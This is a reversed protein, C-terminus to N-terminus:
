AEGAWSTVAMVAEVVVLSPIEDRLESGNTGRAEPVDHLVCAAMVEAAYGQMGGLRAVTEPHQIYPGTGYTSGEHVAAAIDRAASVLDIGSLTPGPESM